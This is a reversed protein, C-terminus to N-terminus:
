YRYRVVASTSNQMHRPHVERPGYVAAIVKNGGLELYCSGDARNLIGVDIKVPRLEDPSRGDLRVGNDILKEPKQNM